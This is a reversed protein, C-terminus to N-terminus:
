KVMGGAAFRITHIGGQPLRASLLQLLPQEWQMRLHYAMAPEDVRFTLVGRRISVPEAYELLATGVEDYLIGILQQRWAPGGRGLSQVFEREIPGVPTNRDRVGRANQVWRLQRDEM